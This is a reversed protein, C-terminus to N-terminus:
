TSLEPKRLIQCGNIRWTGDPQRQMEYAAVAPRGDPGIVDVLQVLRDEVRVLDGFDVTQPRYVQPYGSRVMDMFIEASGFIGRITPSAQAFAAAGDDRRFAAIQDGIVARIALRDGAGIESAPTQALTPSVMLFFLLALLQSAKTGPKSM